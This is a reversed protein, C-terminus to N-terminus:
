MVRWLFVSGFRPSRHSGVIEYFRSLYQLAVLCHQFPLTSCDSREGLRRAARLLAPVCHRCHAAKGNFQPFDTPNASGTEFLSRIKFFPAREATPVELEEYAERLAVFVLGVRADVDGALGIDHVLMWFTNGLLHKAVGLDVVHLIDLCVSFVTLGLSTAHRWIPHDAPAALWQELTTTSAMWPATAQFNTWPNDSRNATCWACPNNSNFHPLRLFNSLYDMDGSVEYWGIFYNGALRGSLRRRAHGMVWRAGHEDVPAFVGRSCQLMDWMLVTWLISMTSVGWKAVTAICKTPLGFWM